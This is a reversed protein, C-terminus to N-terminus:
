IAFALRSRYTIMIKRAKDQGCDQYAKDALLSLNYPSGKPVYLGIGM